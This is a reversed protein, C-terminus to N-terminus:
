PSRLRTTVTAPPAGDAYYRLAEVDVPRFRRWAASLFRLDFSITRCMTEETFEALARDVIRGAAYRHIPTRSPTSSLRVDPEPTVLHSPDM